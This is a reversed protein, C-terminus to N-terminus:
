LKLKYAIVKNGSFTPVLLLKKSAIYGLDAANIKLPTTDMLKEIPKGIEILQVLGKWDSTVIKNKGVVVIGDLYGSNEALIRIDKTKKDMAILKGKSGLLIETGYDFVGNLNGLQDSASFVELSDKGLTLVMNKKTETVYVTGNADSAVDNLATAFACGYKKLVEGTKLSIEWLLGPDAVYLKDNVIAIGKPSNLGKVWEKVLISGNANLKSLYGIKEPTTRAINSVYIIQDAPNFCASEPTNLGEPTEWVKM